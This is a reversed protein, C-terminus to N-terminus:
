TRGTVKQWKLNRNSAEVQKSIALYDSRNEIAITQLTDLPSLERNKM